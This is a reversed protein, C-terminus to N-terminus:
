KTYNNLLARVICKGLVIDMRVPIHSSDDAVYVKMTERETGNKNDRVSFRICERRDGCGDKIIVRGESVIHQMVVIDGNVMPIDIVSGEVMRGENIGRLYKLMSLMDYIQTDSVESRDTLVLGGRSIQLRVSYQNDYNVFHATEVAENGGEHVQKTYVLPVSAPTVYSTITDRLHYFLSAARGTSMIMRLRVADRGDLATLSESYSANGAGISVGALSLSLKYEASENQANLLCVPVLLFICVIVFNRM